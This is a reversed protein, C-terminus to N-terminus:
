FGDHGTRKMKKEEDVSRKGGWRERDWPLDEDERKKDEDLLM